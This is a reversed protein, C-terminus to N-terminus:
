RAASAPACGATPSQGEDGARGAPARWQLGGHRQDQTRSGERVVARDGGAVGAFAAVARRWQVPGARRGARAAERQQDVIRIRRVRGRRAHGPHMPHEVVQRGVAGREGLAQRRRLQRRARALAAVVPLAGAVASRARRDPPVAVEVLEMGEVRQQGVEAVRGLCAQQRRHGPM